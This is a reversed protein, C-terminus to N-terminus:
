AATNRPTPKVRRNDCPAVSANPCALTNAPVTAGAGRDTREVPDMGIGKTAMGRARERGKARVRDKARDRVKARARARAKVRDKVKARDRVKARARDKVKARDRGKDKV